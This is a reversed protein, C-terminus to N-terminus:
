EEYGLAAALEYCASRRFRDGLDTGAFRRQRSGDIKKVVEALRRPPVRLGAFDCIRHMHGVPDEALDEFRLEHYQQGLVRGRLCESVYLDWADLSWDIEAGSKSYPIGRERKSEERRTLSLAVDLPHRIIHLLRAKPFVRLWQPLLLCTRPDKWGWCLRAGAWVQLRQAPRFFGANFRAHMQRALALASDQVFGPSLRAALYPGLHDWDAGTQWLIRANLDRVFDCEHHEGLDRGVCLGCADLLRSLMSTGSRHMGIILVPPGLRRLLSFPPPAPVSRGPGPLLDLEDGAEPWAWDVAADAAPSRLTQLEM